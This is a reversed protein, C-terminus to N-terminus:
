NKYFYQINNRISKLVFNAKNAVKKSAVNNIKILARYKIKKKTSAKLGNSAFKNGQFKKLIAWSCDIFNKNKELRIYGVKQQKFLILNITNKKLYKKLWFKHNNYEITKNNLSCKRVYSKNRLKFLFKSIEENYKNIKIIKM